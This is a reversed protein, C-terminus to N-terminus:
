KEVHGLRVTSSIFCIGGDIEADFPCRSLIQFFMLYVLVGSVVGEGGRSPSGFFQLCAGVLDEGIGDIRVWFLIDVLRM